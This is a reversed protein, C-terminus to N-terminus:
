GCDTFVLKPCRVYRKFWVIWKGDYVEFFNCLATM